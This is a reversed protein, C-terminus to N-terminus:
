EVIVASIRDHSRLSEITNFIVHSLLLVISYTTILEVTLKMSGIDRLGRQGIFKARTLRRMITSLLRHYRAETQGGVIM